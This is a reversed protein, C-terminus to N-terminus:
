TVRARFPAQVRVSGQQVVVMASVMKGRAAVPLRWSCTAKGAKLRHSLVKLKRGEVRGSCFVHGKRMLVGRKLVIVTSAM